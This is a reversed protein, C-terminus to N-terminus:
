WENGSLNGDFRMESEGRCVMAFLEKQQGIM